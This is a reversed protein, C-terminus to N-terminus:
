FNWSASLGLTKQDPYYTPSLSLRRNHSRSREYVKNIDIGAHIITASLGMIGVMFVVIGSDDFISCDGGSCVLSITGVTGGVILTRIGAYKLGTGLDEMYAYGLLPGAILGGSLLLLQTTGDEVKISSLAPGATGLLALGSASASSKTKFSHSSQAHLSTIQIELFLFLLIIRAFFLKYGYKFTISEQNMYRM